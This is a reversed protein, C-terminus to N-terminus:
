LQLTMSKKRCSRHSGQAVWILVNPDLPLIIAVRALTSLRETKYSDITSDSSAFSPNYLFSDTESELVSVAVADDSLAEATVELLVHCPTQPRHMGKM